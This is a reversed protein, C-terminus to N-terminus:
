GAHKGHFQGLILKLIEVEACGELTILIKDCHQVGFMVNLGFHEVKKRQEM